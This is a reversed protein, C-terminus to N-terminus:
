YFRAPHRIGSGLIYIKYLPILASLVWFRSASSYPIYFIKHFVSSLLGYVICLRISTINNFNTKRSYCALSHLPNFQGLVSDRPPNRYVPSRFILNWVLCPIDQGAAARASDTVSATRTSVAQQRVCVLLILGEQQVTERVQVEVHQAAEDSDGDPNEDAEESAGGAWSVQV